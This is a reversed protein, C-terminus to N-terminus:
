FVRQDDGKGVRWLPQESWLGLKNVCDDVSLKPVQNVLKTLALIGGDWNNTEVDTTVGTYTVIALCPHTDENECTQSEM